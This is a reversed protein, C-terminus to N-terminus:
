DILCVCVSTESDHRSGKILAICWMFRARLKFETVSLFSKLVFFMKMFAALHEWLNLYGQGQSSKTELLIYLCSEEGKRLGM